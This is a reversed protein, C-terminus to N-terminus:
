GIMGAWKGGDPPLAKVKYLGGDLDVHLEAWPGDGQRGLAEFHRPHRVPAGAVRWGAAEAARVALAPDADDHAHRGHPGFGGHGHGGRGHGGRGHGGGGHHGPGHHGPGHHGPGHHGPGHHPKKHHIAISEGDKATIETVKIESPRREGTLRVPLGPELRFSEAGKPGLDALHLDGQADLVFRHAFVHRIVGSLAVREFPPM